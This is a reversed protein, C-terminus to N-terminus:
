AAQRRKNDAAAGMAGGWAAVALGLLAAVLLSWAGAAAYNTADAAVEKLQQNEQTGPQQARQASEGAREAANQARQQLQDVDVGAGRAADRAQDRLRLQDPGNVAAGAQATTQAVSGVMGFVGSVLAGAGSGVLYLMTVLSVAWTLAGNFAGDTQNLVGSLRGTIYAGVFLSILLSLVAWIAAGWGMGAGPAGAHPDVATLGIALGLVTLLIQAVVTFFLGALVAGWRVRQLAPLAPLTDSRPVHMTADLAMKCHRQISRFNCLIALSTGHFPDVLGPSAFPSRGLYLGITCKHLSFLAPIVLRLWVERV